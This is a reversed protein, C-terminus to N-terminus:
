TISVENGAGSGHPQCWESETSIPHLSLLGQFCIFSKHMAAAFHSRAMPEELERGSVTPYEIALLDGPVTFNWIVLLDCGTPLSDESVQFHQLHQSLLSKARDENAGPSPSLSLGSNSCGKTHSQRKGGLVRQSATGGAPWGKKKSTAKPPSSAM